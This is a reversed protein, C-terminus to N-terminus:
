LYLMNLIYTALFCSLAVIKVHRLAGVNRKVKNNNCVKVVDTPQAVLIALTGLLMLVTVVKLAVEINMMMMKMVMLMLMRTIMMIMIMMGTTIGAAIRCGMLGLGSTQGSNDM